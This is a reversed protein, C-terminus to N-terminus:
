FGKPHTWALGKREGPDPEGNPFKGPPRAPNIFLGSIIRIAWCIIPLPLKASNIFLGWTASSM